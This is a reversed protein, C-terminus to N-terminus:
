LEIDQVNCLLNRHMAAFTQIEYSLTKFIAYHLGICLQLLKFKLFQM